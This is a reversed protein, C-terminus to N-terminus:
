ELIFTYTIIVNFLNIYILYIIKKISIVFKDFMVDIFKWGVDCFFMNKEELLIQNSEYKQNFIFIYSIPFLLHKENPIRQQIINRKLYKNIM